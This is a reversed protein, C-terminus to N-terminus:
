TEKITELILGYVVHDHWHNNVKEVRRLTGENSFGLREAIASSKTNETACRIEIKQLSLYKQGLEILDQVCATMIGRGNFGAGLWYGITGIQNAPDISNYALVGAIKGEYFITLHLAEGQSFRTLQAKLFSETDKPEKVTDLWPLWQRLFLRNQEILEFLEQSFQPISLKIETTDNIKRSFM